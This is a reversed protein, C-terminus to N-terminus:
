GGLIEDEYKLLQKTCEDFVENYAQDLNAKDTIDVSLGSHIKMSEYNGTNITKSIGVTLRRNAYKISSKM